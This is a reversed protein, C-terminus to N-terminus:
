ASSNKMRLIYVNVWVVLALDIFGGAVSFFLVLLFPNEPNIFIALLVALVKLVFGLAEFIFNHKLLGLVPIVSTVPSNSFAFVIWVTMVGAYYGAERWDSGFVVSFIQGGWVILIASFVVFISFLSVTLKPVIVKIRSVDEVLYKLMSDSISKSILISPALLVTMALLFFAIEAKYGLYELAFIPVFNSIPKILAQPARYIPFDRYKSFSLKFDELYENVKLKFASFVSNVIGYFFLGLGTGIVTAVILNNRSPNAMVGSLLKSSNLIVSAMITAFALNGLLKKYLLDYRLMLVLGSFFVFLPLYVSVEVLTLLYGPFYIKLMMFAIAVFITFLLLVSVVIRMLGLRERDSQVLVMAQQMGLASVPILILALNMFYGYEGMIEPSFIRTMLPMSFLSIAQALGTGIAILLFGKLVAKFGLSCFPLKVNGM